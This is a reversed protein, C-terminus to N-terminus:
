DTLKNVKEKISDGELRELDSEVKPLKIQEETTVCYPKADERLHIKRPDGKMRNGQDFINQVQDVKILMGMLHTVERSLLNEIDWDNQLFGKFTYKGKISRLRSHKKTRYHVAQSKLSREKLRLPSRKRLSKYTKHSM